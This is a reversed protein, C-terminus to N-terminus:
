RSHFVPHNDTKIATPKGYEGIALFVCGLFTWSNFRKLYQMAANLRSGHDIIGFVINQTKNADTVCTTDIGWVSNLPVQEPVRHKLKKQLHLAEHAEKILLERVWTRGVSVGSSASYLQNFMDALKRHSLGFREHLELSRSRVWAEKKAPFGNRALAADGGQEQKRRGRRKVVGSRPWRLNEFVWVILM